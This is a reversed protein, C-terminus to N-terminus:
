EITFPPIIPLSKKHRNRGSLMDIRGKVTDSGEGTLIYHDLEEYTLGMEKEDTQGNWLGASPAKNIIEPPIGLYVALQQVQAKILMAIPMLDVGGDGYKTFYGIELESKNTAGVVAYNLLNAYYYLTAMRLRPKINSEALRMRDMDTNGSSMARKFMNYVEDLNVTKVPITFKDAVNQANERDTDNSYCPMIIGLINDPFAYKCLVAVVSSDIGGSMGLVVGKCGTNLVSDRIWVILQQPLEDILM